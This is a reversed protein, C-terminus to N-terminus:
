HAFVNVVPSRPLRPSEVGPGTPRLHFWPHSSPPPPDPNWAPWVWSSFPVDWSPPPSPSSWWSAWPEEPFSSRKRRRFQSWSGQQRSSVGPRAVICITNYTSKWPLFYQNAQLASWHSIMSSIIKKREKRHSKPRKSYNKSLRFAGKTSRPM